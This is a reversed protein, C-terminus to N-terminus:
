PKREHDIKPIQAAQRGPLGKWFTPRFTSPVAQGGPGFMSSKRGAWFGHMLFGLTFQDSGTPCSGNFSVTLILSVGRNPVRVSFSFGLSKNQDINPRNGAWFNPGLGNGVAGVRFTACLDVWIRGPSRSRFCKTVIELEMRLIWFVFYVWSDLGSFRVVVKPLGAAWSLQRCM